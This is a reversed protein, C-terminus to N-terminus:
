LERCLIWMSRVQSVSNVLARRKYLFVTPTVLPHSHATACWFSPTQKGLTGMPTGVFTAKCSWTNAPLMLAKESTNRRCEINGASGIIWARGQYNCGRTLRKEAECSFLSPLPFCIEDGLLHCKVDGVPIEAVTARAKM